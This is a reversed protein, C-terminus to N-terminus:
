SLLMGKFSKRIGKSHHPFLYYDEGQKAIQYEEKWVQRTTRERERTAEECAPMPLDRKLIHPAAQLDGSGGM